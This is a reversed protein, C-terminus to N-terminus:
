LRVFKGCFKVESGAYDIGHIELRILHPLMNHTVLVYEKGLGKTNKIDYSVPMRLPFRSFREADFRTLSLYLTNGIKPLLCHRGLISRTAHSIVHLM